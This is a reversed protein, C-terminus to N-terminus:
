KLKDKQSKGFEALARICKREQGITYVDNDYANKGAYPFKEQILELLEDFLAGLQREYMAEIVDGHYNHMEAMRIDLEANSVVINETELPVFENFVLKISEERSIETTIIEHRVIEEDYPLAKLQAMVADYLTDHYEGNSDEYRTTLLPM